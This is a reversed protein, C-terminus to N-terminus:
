KVGLLKRYAEENFGVALTNGVRLTPARLNGTPGIMHKLLTEDDPREKTLDFDVINKGRM